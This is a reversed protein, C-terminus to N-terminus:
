DGSFWLYGHQGMASEAAARLEQVAKRENADRPQLATLENVLFRLQYTNFMTDAYLHIGDIISGAPAREIIASIADSSVDVSEVQGHVMNQITVDIGM